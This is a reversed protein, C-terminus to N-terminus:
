LTNNMKSWPVHEQNASFFIGLDCIATEPSSSVLRRAAIFPEEKQTPLREIAYSLSRRPQSAAQSVEAKFTIM